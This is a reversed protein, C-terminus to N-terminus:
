QKNICTPRCVQLLYDKPDQGAQIMTRIKTQVEAMSSKFTNIIHIKIFNLNYLLVQLQIYVFLM